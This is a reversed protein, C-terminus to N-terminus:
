TNPRPEHNLTWLYVEQALLTDLREIADSVEPSFGEGYSTDRPEVEYVASLPPLAGFYSAIAVIGEVSIVAQAAEAVHQQVDEPPTLHGCDWRRITGPKDSRAVAAIFLVGSPHADQLRHLADIASFSYDEIVVGPPWRKEALRDVMVPGLAGDRLYRYGVGAVLLDRGQTRETTSDVDM